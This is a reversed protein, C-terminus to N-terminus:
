EKNTRPIGSLRQTSAAKLEHLSTAARQLLTISGQQRAVKIARGLETKAERVSGAARLIFAHIRRIEPEWMTEGYAAVHDLAQRIYDAAEAANGLHHHARAILALFYSHYARM